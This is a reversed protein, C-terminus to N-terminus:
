GLHMPRGRLLLQAALASPEQPRSEARGTHLADLLARSLYYGHLRQVWDDAHQSSEYARRVDPEFPPPEKTVRVQTIGLDKLEQLMSKKLQTGPTHHAIPEALYAGEARQVPVQMANAPKYAKLVAPLEVIDDPLWKDLPQKMRVHTILGRAIYEINRKNHKIGIDQLVKSFANVFRRRAEGIGKYRAVEAPNPLGESLEDGAEVKDGLKVKLKQDPPVFHEESGIVIRKGGTELTEIKSVTGDVKAITAAYPSTSPVTILFRVEEIGPVAARGSHKSSISQQSLPELLSQAATVAAFAGISPVEGGLKGAAQQSLGHEAYSAIPSYVLIRKIKAAKLKRQLEPTIEAGAKAITPIDQALFAGVYDPDQSDVPVGVYKFPEKPATIRLRSVAEVIQNALDGAQPTALKTGILGFRIPQAQAWYQTPTLGESYSRTIPIPLPEGEADFALLSGALLDLAQEPSGRTGSRLLVGFSGLADQHRLLAERIERQGSALVKKLRADQLEPSLSRDSLIQQVQKRVKERVAQVGPPLEFSSPLMSAEGGYRYACLEGLEHLRRVVQAYDKPHREILAALLKRIRSATLPGEHLIPHLDEPIIEELLLMGATTRRAM